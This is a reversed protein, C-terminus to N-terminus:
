VAERLCMPTSICGVAGIYNGSLNLTTLRTKELVIAAKMGEYGIRNGRLYLYTLQSAHLSKALAVCGEDGIDNGELNLWKLQSGPLKQGDREIGPDCLTMDLKQLKGLM